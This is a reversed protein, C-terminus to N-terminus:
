WPSMRGEFRSISANLETLLINVKNESSTLADQMMKLHLYARDRDHSADSHLARFEDRERLLHHIIDENSSLLPSAAPTAQHADAVSPSGNVVNPAARGLHRFLTKSEIPLEGGPRKSNGM